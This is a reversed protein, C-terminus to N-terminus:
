IQAVLDTIVDNHAQADIERKLIREAGQVAIGAFEKRLQEKLQNLEQQAEERASERIREAEVRAADKAEEILEVARKQAKSVIEATESKAERLLEAAREEALQQEKAGREAAALGDAIRKRRDELMATMPGWLFAQVFWILVGFTILQAILTATINM